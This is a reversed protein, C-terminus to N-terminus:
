LIDPTWDRDNGVPQLIWTFSGPSLLTQKITASDIMSYREQLLDIDRQHQSSFVRVIKDPTAHIHINGVYSTVGRAIVLQIPQKESPKTTGKATAFYYGDLRYKGVPLEIALLRGSSNDPTIPCENDGNKWDLPSNFSLLADYSNSIGVLNVFHSYDCSGSYTLSAVLLGRKSVASFRYNEPVNKHSLGCGTLSVLTIVIVLALLRQM